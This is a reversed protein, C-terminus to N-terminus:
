SIIIKGDRDTFARIYGTNGFTEPLTIYSAGEKEHIYKLIESFERENLLTVPLNASSGYERVAQLIGKNDDQIVSIEDIKSIVRPSEIEIHQPVIVPIKQNFKELPIVDRVPIGTYNTSFTKRHCSECLTILNRFNSNGGDKRPIIHHVQVDLHMRKWAKNGHIGTLRSLNCVRCSYNDRFMVASSILQWQYELGERDGLPSFDTVGLIRYKEETERLRRIRVLPIDRTDHIHIM